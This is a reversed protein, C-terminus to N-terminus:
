SGLSGNCPFEPTFDSYNQVNLQTGKNSKQYGKTNVTRKLRSVNSSILALFVILIGGHQSIVAHEYNTLTYEHSTLDDLFIIRDEQKIYLRFIAIDSDARTLSLKASSSLPIHIAKGDLGILKLWTSILHFRSYYHSCTPRPLCPPFCM